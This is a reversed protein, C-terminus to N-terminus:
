QKLPTEQHFAAQWGGRRRVWVTSSWTTPIPQGGCTGEASGKYILLATAAGLRTLKWDSLTYSKVDCPAAAIEKAIDAKSALGQEGVMVSNATLHADFPKPDKNKWAEWFKTELESLQKTLQAKTVRPARPKPSPSAAPTQAICCTAFVLVLFATPALKQM